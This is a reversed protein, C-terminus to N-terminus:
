AGEAAAVMSQLEEIIEAAQQFRLESLRGISPNLAAGENWAWQIQNVLATVQDRGLEQGPHASRLLKTIAQAQEMTAASPQNTLASGPGDDGPEAVVEGWSSM